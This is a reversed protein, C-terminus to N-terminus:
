PFIWPLWGFERIVALLITFAALVILIKRLQKQDAEYEKLRKEIEKRDEKAM